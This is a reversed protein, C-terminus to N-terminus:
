LMDHFESICEERTKLNKTKVYKRVRKAVGYMMYALPGVELQQNEDCLKHTDTFPNEIELLKNFAHIKDMFTIEEM